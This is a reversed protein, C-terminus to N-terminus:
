KTNCIRTNHKKHYDQHYEEAPYFKKAAIIKIAIPKDYKLQKMSEHAQEKQKLDLYFIASKYQTGHDPYQGAEDTPDINRWYVDLLERYSVKDPDFYVKVAELHGTTGTSVQKYTPNEIQGGTYGSVAEIVGDVQEFAYEIGWFCGGAFIAKVLDSNNLEEYDMETGIASETSLYFVLM